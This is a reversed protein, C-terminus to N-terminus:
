REECGTLTDDGPGGICRDTGRGGALRDDEVGGVLLDDGGRGLVHDRGGLGRIVNTGPDGTITDYASTGNVDEFGTVYWMVDDSYGATGVLLNLRYVGQQMRALDVGAGGDLTGPASGYISPVEVVDSGPGGSVLDLGRGGDIQDSGRGGSLTNPGADGVLTDDHSSGLAGEVSVLADRDEGSAVLHELSVSAYYPASSLDVTDTGSGGVITDYGALGAITDDGGSGCIVDDGPTGSLVDDGETGVIECPVAEWSPESGKIGILRWTGPVPEPEGLPVVGLEEHEVLDCSPLQETVIDLAALLTSGDASFQPDSIGLHATGVARLGSGDRGVMQVQEFHDCYEGGTTRVFALHASDPSWVPDSLAIGDVESAIRTPESGDPDVVYLGGEDTPPFWPSRIYAIQTGDPAWAVSYVEGSLGDPRTTVTIQHADTGDANATWVDFDRLFALRSSDPSWSPDSGEGLARVSRGDPRMMFLTTASCCDRRVFAIHSGDPSWTPRSGRRVVLGAGDPRMVAVYSRGFLSMEFALHRGDPSWSPRTGHVVFRGVRVGAIWIEDGGPALYALRGPAMLPSAGESVRPSFWVPSIALVLAACLRTRWRPWTVTRM